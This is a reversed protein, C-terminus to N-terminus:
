PLAGQEVTQVSDTIRRDSLGSELISTQAM